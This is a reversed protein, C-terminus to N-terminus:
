RRGVQKIPQNQLNEILPQCLPIEGHLQNAFGIEAEGWVPWSEMGSVSIEYPSSCDIVLQQYRQSKAEQRGSSLLIYPIRATAAIYLGRRAKLPLLSGNHKKQPTGPDCYKCRIVAHPYFCGARKNEGGSVRM